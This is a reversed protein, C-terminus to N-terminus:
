SGLCSDRFKRLARARHSIRNKETDDMEAFTRDFGDPQFIPDYGFGSKGRMSRIIRGEVTGNFFEPGSGPRVLCIVARFRASWPRPAEATDLMRLLRHMAKVHDRGEPADAWNASRVGPQGGLADVFLGSDDAVSPLGTRDLAFRAKILANEELTQGTEDPASLGFDAAPVISAGSGSLIEAFERLKGANHTAVVFRRDPLRGM